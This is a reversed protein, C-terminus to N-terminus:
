KQSRYQITVERRDHEQSPALEIRFLPTRSDAELAECLSPFRSTWESLVIASSEWFYAPIGAAELDMEDEIRYLDLHILRRGNAPYEHALAFTPSGEPRLTGGLAPILHRAATSKGAGMPGELLIWAPARLEGALDQMIRCLDQEACASAAKWTQWHPM